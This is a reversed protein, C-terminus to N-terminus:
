RGLILALGILVRGAMRYERENARLFLAVGVVLLVPIVWDARTFLLQVVIASGLDAGLLIALGAGVALTGTSVFNTTMIAVATSSQLVFASATGALAAAIWHKGSRRLLRRLAVSWGREVGTRVLRVSWILLAAAGALHLAFLIPSPGNM